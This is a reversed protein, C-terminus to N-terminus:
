PHLGILVTSQLCPCGTLYEEQCSDEREWRRALLVQARPPCAHRHVQTRGWLLLEHRLLVREPQEWLGPVVAISDSAVACLM